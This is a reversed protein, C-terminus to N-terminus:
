DWTTGQGFRITESHDGWINKITVAFEQSASKPGVWSKPIVFDMIWYTDLTIFEQPALYPKSRDQQDLASESTADFGTRLNLDLTYEKMITDGSACPEILQVTFSNVDPVRDATVIEVVGDQSATPQQSVTVGFSSPTASRPYVLLPHVHPDFNFTNCTSAPNEVAWELSCYTGVRVEHHLHISDASGTQGAEGIKQGAQVVSNPSVAFASLHNYHTYWKNVTQGHFEVNSDKFEHQLIITLGGSGIEEAKLVTGDYSALIDDGTNASIDVGRHWDYRLGSSFKLRPGFTSSIKDMASEPAPWYVLDRMNAFADYYQISSSSSTVASTAVPNAGGLWGFFFSFFWAIIIELWSLQPGPEEQVVCASYAHNTSWVAILVVLIIRKNM